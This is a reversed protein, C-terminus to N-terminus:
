NAIYRLEISFSYSRKTRIIHTQSDIDIREIQHSKELGLISSHALESISALLNTLSFTRGLHLNRTRIHTSSLEVQVIRNAIPM